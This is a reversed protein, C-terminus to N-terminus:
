EGFVKGGIRMRLLAVTGDPGVRADVLAEGRVQDAEERQTEPVYLRRAGVLRLSSVGEYEAPVAVRDDRQKQEPESLAVSEFEWAPEARRLTVWVLDGQRLSERQAPTLATAARLEVEYHLDVYYGSLVDFPDFPRTRLTVPTGFARARVHRAPVIALVGLQVALVVGLPWWRSPV